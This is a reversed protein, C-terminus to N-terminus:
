HNNSTKVDEMKGPKDCNMFSLLVAQCSSEVGDCSLETNENVPKETGLVMETTTNDVTSVPVSNVPSRSDPVSGTTGPSFLGGTSPSSLNSISLTQYLSNLNPALIFSQPTSCSGSTLNKLLKWTSPTLIPSFTQLDSPWFCSVPTDASSSATNDLFGGGAISTTPSKEALLQTSETVSKPFLLTSPRSASKSVNTTSEPLPPSCRPLLDAVIVTPGSGSIYMSPAETKVKVDGNGSPLSELDCPQRKMSVLHSFSALHSSRSIDLKTLAPRETVTSCAGDPDSKTGGRNTTMIFSSSTPSSTTSISTCVMEDLYVGSSLSLRPDILDDEFAGSSDPVDTLSSLNKLLDQADTCGALGHERVLTELRSREKSLAHLTSRLDDGTKTLIGVRQQLEVIQDQRRQRCRAAAVRNRERRKARRRAEDEGVPEEKLTRRGGEFNKSLLVGGRTGVMVAVQDQGVAPPCVTARSDSLTLAPAIPPRNCQVEKLDSNTLGVETGDSRTTRVPSIRPQLGRTLAYDSSSTVSSPYDESVKSQSCLLFLKKPGDQSPSRQEDSFSAASAAMRKPTQGISKARLMPSQRQSSSSSSSLLIPSSTSLGDSRGVSATVSDPFDSTALASNINQDDDLQFNTDWLAKFKPKARPTSTLLSSSSTMALPGCCVTNSPIPTTSVPSSRCSVLPTTPSFSLVPSMQSATRLANAGVINLGHAFTANKGSPSTALFVTSGNASMQLPYVTLGTAGATPFLQSSLDSSQLQCLSTLLGDMTTKNTIVPANITSCDSELPTTSFRTPKVSTTPKSVGFIGSSWHVQNSANEAVAVAASALTNLSSFTDVATVNASPRSPAAILGDRTVVFRNIGSVPVLPDVSIARSRESPEILIASSPLVIANHLSSPAPGSVNLVPPVAIVSPVTTKPIGFSMVLPTGQHQSLTSEPISSCPLSTKCPQSSVPLVSVGDPAPASLEQQQIRKLTQQLNNISSPTLKQLLQLWDEENLHISSGLTALTDTNESAGSM